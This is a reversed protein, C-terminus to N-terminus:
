LLKITTQTVDTGVYCCNVILQKEGCELDRALEEDTVLVTGLCVSVILKRAQLKALHQGIKVLILQRQRVRAVSQM